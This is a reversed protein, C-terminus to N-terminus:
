SDISGSLCVCCAACLVSSRWDGKQGVWGWRGGGRGGACVAGAPAVEELVVRCVVGEAEEGGDRGDVAVGGRGVGERGRPEGWGGGPLGQVLLREHRLQGHQAALGGDGAVAAKLPALAGRPREKPRVVLLHTDLSPVRTTTTDQSFTSRRAVTLTRTKVAWGDWRGVVCVCVCACLAGQHQHRLVPGLPHAHM